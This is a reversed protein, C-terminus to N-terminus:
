WQGSDNTSGVCKWFPLIDCFSLIWLKPVLFRDWSGMTRLETGLSTKAPVLGSLLGRGHMTYISTYLTHPRQVNGDECPSIWGLPGLFGSYDRSRPPSSGPGIVNVESLPRTEAVPKSKLVYRPSLFYAIIQYGDVTSWQSTTIINYVTIPWFTSVKTKM